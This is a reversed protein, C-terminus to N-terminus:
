SIWQDVHSRRGDLMCTAIPREGDVLGHARDIKVHQKAEIGTGWWGEPVAGGPLKAYVEHDFKAKAPLKGDVFTLSGDPAGAPTPLPLVMALDAAAEFSMAYALAQRSGAAADRAFIRTKAVSLVAGLLLVHPFPSSV